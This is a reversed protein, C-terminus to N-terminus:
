MEKHFKCISNVTVYWTFKRNRGNHWTVSKHRALSSSYRLPTWSWANVDWGIDHSTSWLLSIEITGNEWKYTVCIWWRNPFLHGIWNSVNYRRFHNMKILYNKTKHGSKSFYWQIQRHSLLHGLDSIDLLIQNLVFVLCMQGM